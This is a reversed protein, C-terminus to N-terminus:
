ALSKGNQSGGARTKQWYMILVGFIAGFFILKPLFGVGSSATVPLPQASGKGSDVTSDLQDNPVTALAEGFLAEIAYRADALEM